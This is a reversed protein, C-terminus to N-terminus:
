AMVTKRWVQGTSEGVAKVVAETVASVSDGIAAAAEIVAEEAEGAELGM